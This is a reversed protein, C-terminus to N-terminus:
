LEVEAPALLRADAGGVLTPLRVERARWGRHGLVGEFPGAGQV